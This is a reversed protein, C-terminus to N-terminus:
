HWHWFLLIILMKGTVRWLTFTSRHNNPKFKNQSKFTLCRQLSQLSAIKQFDFSLSTSKLNRFSLYIVQFFLSNAKNFESGFNVFLCNKIEKALYLHVFKAQSCVHHHSFKDWRWCPSSTFNNSSPFKGESHWTM